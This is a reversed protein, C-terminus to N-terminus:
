SELITWDEDWNQPYQGAGICELCSNVADECPHYAYHCTPRYMVEGKEDKVEFFNSISVAEEHTILFGFQPGMTPCWTKVFTSMGPQKLYIASKCGFDHKEGNKPMWKEHTGWGLESVQEFGEGIFGDISWTNWFEGPQRVINARQLDREAIHVGKVGTKQMLQAWEKKNTPEKEYVGTDKAVTVLAKKVYWSVSGPNAGCCSICTPKM